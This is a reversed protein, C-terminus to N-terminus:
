REPMTVTLRNLARLRVRLWARLRVRLWARLRVRLWVRWWARLWARSIDMVSPVVSTTSEMGITSM